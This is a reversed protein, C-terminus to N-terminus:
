LFNEAESPGTKCRLEGNSQPNKPPRAVEDWEPRPSSQGSRVGRTVGQQRSSGGYRDHLGPRRVAYDDGYQMIMAMRENGCNKAMSQAQAGLDQFHLTPPMTM